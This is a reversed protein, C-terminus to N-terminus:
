FVERKRTAVLATVLALDGICVLVLTVVAFNVDVVRLGIVIVVTLPLCLRLNVKQFPHLYKRPILADM